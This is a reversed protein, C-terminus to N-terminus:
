NVGLRVHRAPTPRDIRMGSGCLATALATLVDDDGGLHMTTAARRIPCGSLLSALAALRLARRERLAHVTSEDAQRELTGIGV